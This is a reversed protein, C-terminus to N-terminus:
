RGCSYHCTRRCGRRARDGPCVARRRCSWRRWASPIERGLPVGRGVGDEDDDAVDLGLGCQGFDALEVGVNGAMGDGVMGFDVELGHLGVGEGEIAIQGVHEAEDGLAHRARIRGVPGGDLDEGVHEGALAGVEVAHDRGAFRQGRLEAQGLGVALGADAVAHHRQGGSLVYGRGDLLHALDDVVVGGVAHGGVQDVGGLALFDACASNWRLEM